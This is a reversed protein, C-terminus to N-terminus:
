RPCSHDPDLIVQDPGIRRQFAPPGSARLTGSFGGWKSRLTWGRSTMVELPWIAGKAEQSLSLPYRILFIEAYVLTTPRIKSRMRHRDAANTSYVAM